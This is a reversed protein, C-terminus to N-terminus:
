QHGALTSLRLYDFGAMNEKLVAFMRLHALYPDKELM